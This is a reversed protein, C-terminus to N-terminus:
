PRADDIPRILLGGERRIPPTVPVDDAAACILASRAEFGAPLEAGRGVICRTLQVSPGVWAEPMVVTDTIRAERGIETAFGLAVHGRFRAEAHHRVGAGCAAVADDLELLPDHETLKRQAAWSRRVLELSGDLYQEPSGFEWWFGDHIFSGLAREAALGRYVDKVIDSPMREPIKDLLEPALIHCGTFLCRRAVRAPDVAPHGNLALVRGDADLEVAAYGEREPALVLTAVDGSRRHAAVASALDIDSLFDGNCVIVVGDALGDRLMSAARRIGGGTGLLVSEPSYRLPPTGFDGGCGLMRRLQEGHHHLNLVVWDPDCARLWRLSQVVLPRGLVPLAPKPAHATLPLMREGLGATLLM